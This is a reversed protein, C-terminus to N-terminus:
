LSKIAILYDQTPRKGFDIRVPLFRRIVEANTQAHRTLRAATFEGGGALALALLLQDALCHGVAADSAIYGWTARLAEHAVRETKPGRDGTSTTSSSCTWGVMAITTSGRERSPGHTTRFARLAPSKAFAPGQIETSRTADLERLLYILAAMMTSTAPARM